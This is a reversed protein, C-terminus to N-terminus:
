KERILDDIYCWRVVNCRGVIDRYFPSSNFIYVQYQRKGYFDQELLIQAGAKNPEESADHWVKEQFWDIGDLFANQENRIDSYCIAMQLEDKDIM